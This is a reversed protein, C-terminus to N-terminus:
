QKKLRELAQRGNENKPNLEISKEYNEIALRRNGALLYAGGLSDYANYAAPNAKM